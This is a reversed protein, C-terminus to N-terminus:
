QPEKRANPGRKRVEASIAKLASLPTQLPISCEPGILDIGLKTATIVQRAIDEKQGEMLTINSVGGALSIKGRTKERAFSAEVKSDFHFCDFNSDAIFDLRDSTDGCIHLITPANIRMPAEDFVDGVFDRFMEPSCFERNGVNGFLIVDAGAEVQANAFSICLEKFIETIKKVKDPDTVMSTLFDEIHVDGDGSAM